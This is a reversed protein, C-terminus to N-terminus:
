KQLLDRRPKTMDSSRPLIKSLYQVMGLLRHSGAVDTHAPMDAIAKVGAQDPKLGEDTAAHGIFPISLQRLNLKDTNLVLNEKYMDCRRLFAVLNEDHYKTAQEITDGYGVVLFDEAVVQVGVLGDVVERMRRHSVEPASGFGFPVRRLCYRGFPTHFTTLRSSEKYMQIHWM